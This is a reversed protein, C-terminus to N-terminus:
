VLLTLVDYFTLWLGTFLDLVYDTCWLIGAMSGNFMYMYMMLVGFLALM